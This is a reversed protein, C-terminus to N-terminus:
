VVTHSHQVERGRMAVRAAHPQEERVARWGVLGVHAARRREVVREAAHGAAPGSLAMCLAM